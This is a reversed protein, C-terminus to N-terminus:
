ILEIVWNFLDVVVFLLIFNNEDLSWNVVMSTTTDPVSNNMEFLNKKENEKLEIFM